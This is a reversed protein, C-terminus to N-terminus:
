SRGPGIFYKLKYQKCLLYLNRFVQIIVDSCDIVKYLESWIRKSLGAKMIWERTEDYSDPLERVIASDKEIVYGDGSQQATAVYSDLDGTALSPRKRQKKPGFTNEFSQTELLHVRAFKSSEKLLTIPLKTQRMVVQYPDKIAQGLEEQFKQLASQGVQFNLQHLTIYEHLPFIIVYWESTELGVVTPNWGPLLVLHLNPSSHPQAFSKALKM